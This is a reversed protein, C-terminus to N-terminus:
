YLLNEIFVKKPNVPDVLLDLTQMKNVKSRLIPGALLLMVSKRYEQGNVEYAFSIYFNGNNRRTSVEKSTVKNDKAKLVADGITKIRYVLLAIILADVVFLGFFAGWAGVALIALLLLTSIVTIIFLLTSLYDFRIISKFKPKM